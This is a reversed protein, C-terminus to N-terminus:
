MLPWPRPSHPRSRETQAVFLNFGMEHDWPGSKEERVGKEVLRQSDWEDNMRRSGKNTSTTVTM